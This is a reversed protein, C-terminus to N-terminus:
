GNNITTITKIRSIVTQVRSMTVQGDNVHGPLALEFQDNKLMEEFSQKLYIKLESNALKVDDAINVRGAIVTIIDEFDHSGLFDNKGRTKFAEIKTALFYPATVSKIILNDAIQHSIASELAESYWRNGFGLIKENTPMVDLIIDEYHWRCIVDDEMSKNFGINNLKKEFKHYQGLSIVDIICDVDLTPRVDLSLPDNIFLATASGGLYVVEDNLPGLKRAVRELM